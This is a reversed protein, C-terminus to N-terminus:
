ESAGKGLKRRVLFQGIMDLLIIGTVIFLFLPNRRSYALCNLFTYLAVVASLMKRMSRTTREADEEDGAGRRGLLPALHYGLSVDCLVLVMNLIFIHLIYPQM